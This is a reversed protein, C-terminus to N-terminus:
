RVRVAGSLYAISKARYADDHLFYSPQADLAPDVPPVLKPWQECDNRYSSASHSPLGDGKYYHWISWLGTFLFIRVVLLCAALRIAIAIRRSRASSTTREVAGGPQPLDPGSNPCLLTKEDSM